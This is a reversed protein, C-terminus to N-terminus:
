LNNPAIQFQKVNDCISNLGCLTPFFLVPTSIISFNLQWILVDLIAM